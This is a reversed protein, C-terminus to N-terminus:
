IIGKIVDNLVSEISHSSDILIYGLQSYESRVRKNHDLTQKLEHPQKGWDNDARNKIRQTLTEDDAYLAIRKLFLDKVNEENAITGCIFITKDQSEHSIKLLTARTVNWSHEEIFRKTRDIPKVSSKPHIYGTEKHQWRALADKDTDLANYGRKKLEECLTTKGTGATGTILILPM